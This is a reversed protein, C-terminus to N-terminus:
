ERFVRGKSVKGVIGALTISERIFRVFDPARLVPGVPGRGRYIAQDNGAVQSAVGIRPDHTQASPDDTISRTSSVTFGGFRWQGQDSCRQSGGRM